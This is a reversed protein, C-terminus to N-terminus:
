AQGRPTLSDSIGAPKHLKAPTRTPAAFDTVSVSVWRKAEPATGLMSTHGQTRNCPESRLFGAFVGEPQRFHQNPTKGAKAGPVVPSLKGTLGPKHHAAPLTFQTTPLNTRLQTYRGVSM